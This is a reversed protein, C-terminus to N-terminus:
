AVQNDANYSISDADWFSIYQRIFMVLHPYTKKIAHLQVEFNVM